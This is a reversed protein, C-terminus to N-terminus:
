NSPGLKGRRIAMFREKRRESVTKEYETKDLESWSLDQPKEMGKPVTFIWIFRRVPRYIYDYLVFRIPDPSYSMWVEKWDVFVGFFLLTTLLLREGLYVHKKRNMKEAKKSHGLVYSRKVLYRRQEYNNLVKAANNTYSSHAEILDIETYDSQEENSLCIVYDQIAKPIIFKGTSTQRNEIIAAMLAQSDYVMSDILHGRKMGTRVTIYDLYHSVRSVQIWEQRSPLWVDIRHADYENSFMSDLSCHVLRVPLELKKYSNWISDRVCHYQHMSYQEVSSNLVLAHVTEFQTVRKDDGDFWNNGIRYSAGSTMIKLPNNSNITGLTTLFGVLCERSAETLHLTSFKQSDTLIRSPDYFYDKSDKSNVAEVVPSKTLCLGSIQIFNEKELEAIFFDTLGQQVKAGIGFYYHSNPGVVSKSYCNNIYSLKRHGLVKILNQKSLFNSEVKDLIVDELPVLKSSRNPISLVTPMIRDEIAELQSSIENFTTEYKDSSKQSTAKDLREKLSVLKRSEAKLTKLKDSSLCPDPSKNRKEIQAELQEINVTLRKFFEKNYRPKFVQHVGPFEKTNIILSSYFKRM